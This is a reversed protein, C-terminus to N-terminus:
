RMYNKKLLSYICTDSFGESLYEDEKSIGELEFGCKEAIRKSGINMTSSKLTVKNLEYQRFSLELIKRVCKTSIGKGSYDKDIWYMVETKKNTWDIYKLGVVGVMKDKYYVGARFGNNNKLQNFFVGIVNKADDISKTENIRPMFRELYNRNSNMLHFFVEADSVELLKLKLSEDIDCYFMKCRMKIDVYNYM